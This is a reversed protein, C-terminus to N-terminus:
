TQVKFNSFSGGEAKHKRLAAAIEYGRPTLTLKFGADWDNPDGEFLGGTLMDQVCDWDDHNPVSTGDSLRTGHQAEMPVGFSAVRKEHGPLAEVLVRFTRRKQRMHKDFKVEYEGFDVLKHEIYALTSWHDRGWLTMPIIDSM